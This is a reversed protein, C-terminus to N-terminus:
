INRSSAWRVTLETITALATCGLYWDYGDPLDALLDIKSSASGDHQWTGNHLFNGGTGANNLRVTGSDVAVTARFTAVPTKTGNVPLAALVLTATGSADGEIQALRFVNDPADKSGSPASYNGKSGIGVRQFTDYDTSASSFTISGGNGSAM